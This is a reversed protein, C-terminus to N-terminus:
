YPMQCKQLATHAKNIVKVPTEIWKIGNNYRKVIVVSNRGGMKSNVISHADQHCMAINKYQKKGAERVWNQEMSNRGNFYYGNLTDKIQFYYEM